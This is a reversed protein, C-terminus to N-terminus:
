ATTDLCPLAVRLDSVSLRRLRAAVWRRLNLHTSASDRNCKEDLIAQSPAPLRRRAIQLRAFAVPRILPSTM